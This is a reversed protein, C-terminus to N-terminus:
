VDLAVTTGSASVRGEGQYHAQRPLGTRLQDPVNEPGNGAGAHVAARPDAQDGRRKKGTRADHEALVVSAHWLTFYVYVCVFACM